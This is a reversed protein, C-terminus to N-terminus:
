VPAVSVGLAQPGATTSGLPRSQNSSGDPEQLTQLAQLWNTLVIFEFNRSTPYDNVQRNDTSGIGVLLTTLMVLTLMLGSLDTTYSRKPTM